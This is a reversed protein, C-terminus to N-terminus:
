PTPDLLSEDPHDLDLLLLMAQFVLEADTISNLDDNVTKTVPGFKWEWVVRFNRCAQLLMGRQEAQEEIVDAITKWTAM